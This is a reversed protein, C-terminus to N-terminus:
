HTTMWARAERQATAIEAESMQGAVEQRLSIADVRGKLAALNFWKHAAVLDIPGNRGSSYLVGLDFLVDGNAAAEIAMAAGTDITGQFM